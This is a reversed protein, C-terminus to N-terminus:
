DNLAQKRSKEELKEEVFDLYMYAASDEELDKKADKIKPYWNEFLYKAIRNNLYDFARSLTTIM